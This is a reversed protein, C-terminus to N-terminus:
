KFHNQFFCSDNTVSLKIDTLSNSLFTAIFLIFKTSRDIKSQFFPRNQNPYFSLDSIKM